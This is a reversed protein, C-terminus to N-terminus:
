VKFGTLNQYSYSDVIINNLGDKVWSKEEPNVSRSFHGFVSGKRTRIKGYETQIRFFVALFFEKSPCKECLTLNAYETNFNRM